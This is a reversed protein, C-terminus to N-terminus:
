FVLIINYLSACVDNICQITGPVELLYIIIRYSAIRNNKKNCARLEEVSPEASEQSKSKLDKNAMKLKSIESRLKKMQNGDQKGAKRQM